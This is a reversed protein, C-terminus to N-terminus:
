LILCALVESSPVSDDFRLCLLNNDYLFYDVSELGFTYGIVIFATAFMRTVMIAHKKDNDNMPMIKKHYFINFLLENSHHYIRASFNTLISVWLLVGLLQFIMLIDADNVQLFERFYIRGLTIIIWSFGIFSIGYILYSLFRFLQYKNRM